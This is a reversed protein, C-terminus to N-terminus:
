QAGNDIGPFAQDFERELDFVTREPPPESKARALDSPAFIHRCKGCRLRQKPLSPIRNTAGCTCTLLM